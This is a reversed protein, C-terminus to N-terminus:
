GLYFNSWNSFPFQEVEQQLKNGVLSEFFNSLNKPIYSFGIVHVSTKSNMNGVM